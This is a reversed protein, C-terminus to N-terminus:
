DVGILRVKHQQGNVEVTKIEGGEKTVDEKTLSNIYDEDQYWYFEELRLEIKMDGEVYKGPIHLSGNLRKKNITYTYETDILVRNGSVVKNLRDPLRLNASLDTNVSINTDYDKGIYAKSNDFILGNIEPLEVKVEVLPKNFAFYIGASAGAVVLASAMVTAFTIGIKKHKTHKVSEKAHKELTGKKIMESIIKKADAIYSREPKNNVKDLFLSKNVVGQNLYIFFVRVEVKDKYIFDNRVLYSFSSFKEM